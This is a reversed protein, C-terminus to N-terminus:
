YSIENLIKEYSGEYTSFKRNTTSIATNNFDEFLHVLNLFEKKYKKGVSEFVFHITKRIFQAPVELKPFSSADSPLKSTMIISRTYDNLRKMDDVDLLDVGLYFGGLPKVFKLARIVISAIVDERKSRYDNSSDLSITENAVNTSQEDDELEAIVEADSARKAESKLYELKSKRLVLTTKSIEISPNIFTVPDKLHILFTEIAERLDAANDVLEWNPVPLGNYDLMALHDSYKKEAIGEEYDVTDWHEGKFEFPIVSDDYINSKSYSLIILKDLEKILSNFFKKREFLSESTKITADYEIYFCKAIETDGEKTYLLYANAIFDILNEM